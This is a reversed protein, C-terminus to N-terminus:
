IDQALFIHFSYIQLWFLKKKMHVCIGLIKINVTECESLMHQGIVFKFM